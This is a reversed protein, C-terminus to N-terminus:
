SNVWGLKMHQFMHFPLGVTAFCCSRWSVHCCFTGGRGTSSKVTSLIIRQYLHVWKHSEWAKVYIAGYWSCISLLLHSYHWILPVYKYIFEGSYLFALLLHLRQTQLINILNQLYIFIFLIYSVITLCQWIKPLGRCEHSYITYNTQSNNWLFIWLQLASLLFWLSSAEEISYVISM